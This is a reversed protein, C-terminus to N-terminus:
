KRIAEFFNGIIDPFHGFQLNQQNWISKTYKGYIGCRDEDYIELSSFQEHLSYFVAKKQYQGLNHTSDISTDFSSAIRYTIYIIKM